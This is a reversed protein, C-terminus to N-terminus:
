NRNQTVIRPRIPPPSGRPMTPKGAVGEGRGGRQVFTQYVRHEAMRTPRRFILGPFGEQRRAMGSRAREARPDSGTTQDLWDLVQGAPQEFGQPAFTEVAGLLILAPESIATRLSDAFWAEPV